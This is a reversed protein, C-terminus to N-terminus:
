DVINIFYNTIGEIDQTIPHKDQTKVYLVAMAALVVPTTPYKQVLESAIYQVKCEDSFNSYKDLREEIFKILELM